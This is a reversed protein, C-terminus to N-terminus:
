NAIRESQSSIHQCNALEFIPSLFLLEAIQSAQVPCVAESRMGEDQLLERGFSIESAVKGDGIGSGLAVFHHVSPAERKRKLRQGPLESEVSM